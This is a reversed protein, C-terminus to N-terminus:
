PTATTDTEDTERRTPTEEEPRTATTTDADNNTETLREIRELVSQARNRQAVTEIEAIEASTFGARRLAVQTDAVQPLAHVLKVISDASAQPSVYRAPKWVVDMRWSEQPPATLGDRIMVINEAMRRLAPAFVRWQYEAEDSLAYEAAQMAEASAPNDAFLGVSSQPLSTAACFNQALQRYMAMHPEMSSQPFTGAQPIQGEENTSLALLRGTVAKWADMDAFADPDAGLVYRQPASFFESTTEARVLTRAAMDTLYRVTRTIRSRGFPRGLQPDYTLMEVPARGLQHPQTRWTWTNKELWCTVFTTPGVYLLRSPYGEPTIDQICLASRLRNLRNDWTGTAWLADRAQVLVPPEGNTQDGATVILFCCGHKYAANIAQPLTMDFNNASLIEGTDFPDTQGALSYGEFIHKRALTQVAKSPWDLAARTAQLSPPVSIGLSRFFRHQDYYEELLLNKSRVKAWQGWMYALDTQDSAPLAEILPPLVPPTTPKNAAILGEYIM